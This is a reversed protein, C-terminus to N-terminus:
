SAVRPKIIKLWKDLYENLTLKEDKVLVGKDLEAFKETLLKNADSKKGRVTRSFLNELKGNKRTQIRVLFRNRRIQFKLRCIL